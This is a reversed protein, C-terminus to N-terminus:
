HRSCQVAGHFTATCLSCRHPAHGKGTTDPCSGSLNFRFCVPLGDTIYVLHKGKYTVAPKLDDRGVVTRADCQFAVHSDKKGCRLCISPKTENNRFSHSNYQDANRKTYPEYRHSARDSSHSQSFANTRFSSSSFSRDRFSNDRIREELRRMDRRTEEQMIGQQAMFFGQIYTKSTPIFPRDFLQKRMRRDMRQFAKFHPRMIPNQTFRTFHDEWALPLESGPEMVEVLCRIFNHYAQQFQVQDLDEESPFQDPNYVRIGRSASKHSKLDQDLRIRDLSDVLFFSLPVYVRERVTTLIQDPITELMELQENKRAVDDSFAFPKSTTTSTITPTNSLNNPADYPLPSTTIHTSNLTNLDTSPNKSSVNTNFTLSPAKHSSLFSILNSDSLFEEDDSIPENILRKTARADNRRSRMANIDDKLRNLDPTSGTIAKPDPAPKSPPPNQTTPVIALVASQRCAAM